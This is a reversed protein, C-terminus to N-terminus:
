GGAHVRRRLGAAVLAAVTAVALVTLTLLVALASVMRDPGYHMLTYLRVSAPTIGPPAVLVSADVERFALAFAGCWVLALAPACVPTTICLMRRVWPIGSVAAAEDLSTAVEDHVPALAHLALWVLQAACAWVLVTASNYVIDALPNPRNLLYILGIGVVPGSLLFAAGSAEGLVRWVRSGRRLVVCAFALPTAISAALVALGAGLAWEERATAWTTAYAGLPLSGAFVVALPLAVTIGVVGWAVCTWLLRVTWPSLPAPFPKSAGSLWATGRRNAASAGLAAVLGLAALPLSLAVAGPIDHFASFRAYVEVAYTNVQLLSAVAYSQMALLAAVLMGSLVAPWLMPVAVRLTARLRGCALVAAEYPRRDLRCLAAALLLAVIPYLAAGQVWIVGLRGFVPPVPAEYNLVFRSAERALGSRGLVTIWAMAMVYPPALFAPAIAYPLLRRGWPAGRAIAYGVPVGLVCAVLASGGATLLTTGLLRWPRPGAYLAPVAALGIRGDSGPAFLATAAALVPGGVLVVLVAATALGVLASGSPMRFALLRM